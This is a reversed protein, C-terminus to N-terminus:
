ERQTYQERKESEEWRERERERNRHLKERERYIARERGGQTIERERLGM